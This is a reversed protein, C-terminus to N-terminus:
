FLKLTLTIEFNQLFKIFYKGKASFVKYCHLMVSIEDKFPQMNDIEIYENISFVSKRYNSPHYHM